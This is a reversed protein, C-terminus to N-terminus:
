GSTATATSGDPTSPNTTGTPTSGNSTGTSATPTGTATSGNSTPAPGSTGPLSSATPTPTASNPTPTSANPLSTSPNPTPTSSNSAPTATPTGVSTGPPEGAASDDIATGDATPTSDSVDVWLRMALDANAVRPTEPAGDEYVLVRLRIRDGTLTPAFRREATARQDSDVGVRFADVRESAVVSGNGAVRQAVTVVEYTQRTDEHNEIAVHIPRAQGARFSTNADAAVLAGTENEALLYAETYGEDASPVAGAFAVAGVLALIGAVVAVAQLRTATASLPLVSVSGALPNARAREPLRSRRAAAVVAGLVTVTTLAALVPALRIGVTASLGVGTLAVVLVTGVFSLAARVPWGPGIRGTDVAGPRAPLVAAVIAYGPLFVLM